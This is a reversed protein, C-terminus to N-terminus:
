PQITWEGLPAWPAQAALREDLLPVKRGTFADYLQLTGIVRGAPADPPTELAHPSTVRSAAIWKLTSIAGTAPVWDDLDRWAWTDDPNVGILATSIVYDRLVPRSAAFHLKFQEFPQDPNCPTAGLYVIGDGFPLYVDCAAPSPLQFSRGSGLKLFPKDPAVNLTHATTLYSGAPLAPLHVPAVPTSGDTLDLDIAHSDRTTQWHLYLRPEQPLSLDWDAGILLLGRQLTRHRPHQTFPMQQAPALDVTLIESQAANGATTYAGIQLSYRGPAAGPRVELQFRALTLDGPALHQTALVQDEQAYVAGDYGVLHAFLTVPEAPTEDLRWALILELPTDLTQEGPELQQGVVTLTDGLALDLSIMGEPLSRRPEARVLFAEGLPEIIAPLAQYALEHFHTVVVAPRQALEEQIHRAWTEEYAEATPSVYQIDLDPRQGEVAQLYRLPSYWHWDCLVASEAPAQEVIPAAYDRADHSQALARMSPWHSLGQGLGALLVFGVLLPSALRHFRGRSEALGSVGVGLLIALLVYAPLMYEVTQPARYTATILTHLVFGGVLLLALHRKKGLLVVAGLASGALVLPHFQFLLVNGMVQLRTWLDAPSIFYFFDGSFGLGLAYHLFAQPSAALGPQRLPLYLLPLLCLLGVLAPRLWRRPTRLLERDALLLYALMLLGIFALSLHHTLGLTLAAVFLLLTRRNSAEPRQTGEGYSVLALLALATLCAAPTRVNAMTAQAWFTTGTGLALAAALGAWLRGTLRKVTAAVLVLTLAALWASLWNVRWPIERIPLRAFVASLVTYLPYGPPHAVGWTAATLQYEGNDAPLVDPALTLTYLLLAGALLAILTLIGLKGPARRETM